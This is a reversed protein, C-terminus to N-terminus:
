SGRKATMTAPPTGPAGMGDVTLTLTDGEVKGTHNITMGGPAGPAQMSIKFSIENGNVSGESIPMEGMMANSMSGTLAAGDAQLTFTMEMPGQPTDMSANWKGSVSDQAVAASTVMALLLSSLLRPTRM